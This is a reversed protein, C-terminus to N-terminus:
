MYLYVVCWGQWVRARGMQKRQVFITKGSIFARRLSTLLPGQLDSEIELTTPSMIAVGDGSSSALTFLLIYPFSSPLAPTITSPLILQRIDKSTKKKKTTQLVSGLYKEDQV